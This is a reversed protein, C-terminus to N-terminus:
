MSVTSATITVLTMAATDELTIFTDALLPPQTVRYELLDITTRPRMRVLVTGVAHAFLHLNTCTHTLHMCACVCM